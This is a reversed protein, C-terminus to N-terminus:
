MGFGSIRDEIFLDKDDHKVMAQFLEDQNSFPQGLPEYGKSILGRIEKILDEPSVNYCLVYDDIM